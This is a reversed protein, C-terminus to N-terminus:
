EISKETPTKNENEFRVIYISLLIGNVMVPRFTSNETQNPQNNKKRRAGVLVISVKLRIRTSM